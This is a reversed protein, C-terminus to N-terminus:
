TKTYNWTPWFVTAQHSTYREGYYEILGVQAVPYNSKAIEAMAQELSNVPVSVYRYGDEACLYVNVYTASPKHGFWKQVEALSSTNGNFNGVCEVDNM